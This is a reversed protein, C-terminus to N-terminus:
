LNNYLNRGSYQVCRQKNPITLLLLFLILSEPCVYHTSLTASHLNHYPKTSLMQHRLAVTFVNQKTVQQPSFEVGVPVTEEYCGRDKYCGQLVDLM